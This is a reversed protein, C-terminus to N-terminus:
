ALSYFLHSLFPPWEGSQLVRIYTALRSCMLAFIYDYIIAGGEIPKLRLCSGSSRAGFCMSILLKRVTSYVIFRVCVCWPDSTSSAEEVKKHNTRTPNEEGLYEKREKGTLCSCAKGARNIGRCIEMKRTFANWAIHFTRSCYKWFRRTKQPTLLLQTWSQCRRLLKRGRFM